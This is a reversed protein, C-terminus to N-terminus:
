YRHEKVEYLYDNSDANRNDGTLAASVDGLFLTERDKTDNNNNNDIDNNDSEEDSSDDSINM